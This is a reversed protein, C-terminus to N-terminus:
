EATPQCQQGEARFQTHQYQSNDNESNPFILKLGRKKADYDWLVKKKSDLSEVSELQWHEPMVLTVSPLIGNM